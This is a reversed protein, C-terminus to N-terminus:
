MIYYLYFRLGGGGLGVQLNGFHSVGSKDKYDIDCIYTFVHRFNIELDM